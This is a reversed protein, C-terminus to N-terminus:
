VGIGIVLIDDVQSNIAKWQEFTEDLIKEQEEIPKQHVSLILEKFQKSMFKKGSPGGFQDAFGDSFIYICDNESLTIVHNTFSRNNETQLGGISFKDAKIEELKNNRIIWLPRHAGAYEVITSKDNLTTSSISILAIDMGDRTESFEADQKLSKRVDTHLKNLIDAPQTIGSENVIQNLLNTGIMSMLAGPVGHGTCDAAAILKKGNKETLWYFDGSVIDKPKFLVFANKFLQRKLEKAPLIAEQIRRAYNISDTIDKNKEEIIKKQEVIESTREQVQVELVEKQTELIKQKEKEQELNKASLIKVEELKKSLNKNTAAFQKALYLSMSIPISMFSLLILLPLVSGSINLGGLITVLLIFTTVVLTFIGVGSGIIVSGEKKKILAVIVVRFVEIISVALFFTYFIGYHEWRSITLIMTVIGLILLYWFLKPFRAYFISYVLLLLAIFFVPFSIVIANDFWDFIAADTVITQFFPTLGYFSLIFAFIFYFLNSKNTRYFLFIFLHAIGLALIFAFIFTSSVSADINFKITEYIQENAGALTIAFGKGYNRNRNLEKKHDSYRIALVHENKKSATFVVPFSNSYFREEKEPDANVKGFQKIKKGDFYIESAGTQLITFALPISTLSSDFKLHLRFWGIGKFNENLFQTNLTDWETDDIEPQAWTTDDGSHFKWFKNLNINVNDVHFLLTDNAKIVTVFAILILFFIRKIM